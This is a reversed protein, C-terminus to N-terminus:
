LEQFEVSTYGILSISIKNLGTGNKYSFGTDTRTFYNPYVPEEYVIFTREQAVLSIDSNAYHNSSAFYVGGNAATIDVENQCDEPLNYSFDGNSVNVNMKTKIDPLYLQVEDADGMREAKGSVTVIWEGNQDTLQVDYYESDYVAQLENSTSPLIVIGGNEIDLSLNLNESIGSLDDSSVKALNDSRNDNSFNQISNDSSYQMPKNKITYAGIIISCVILLLTLGLMITKAAKSNEKFNIIAGLREKLLEKSENLTVSSVTDKYKGGLAMAHLLTDGYKRREKENLTRIMEEDCSLECERSIEHGMIYVLPNFWHLCITIQVLWKYFMDKRKFHTLEHLLTYKLDDESINTTPLIICPRFFGILLPSSILENTYFEVPCNVGIQTGLRSLTNLLEISSVEERGAKIYKVFGQYLTIKRILLILSVILWIIGLNQFLVSVFSHILSFTTDSNDNTDYNNKEVPTINVTGDTPTTEVIQEMVIDTKEFIRGTLSIDPTLPILLRAIIILWIYYKWRHNTRERFFVKGIFLMIIILLAGSFSLSLIIKLLDNM